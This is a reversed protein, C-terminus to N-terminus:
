RVFVSSASLNAALVELIATDGGGAGRGGSAGAALRAPVALAAAVSSVRVIAGL